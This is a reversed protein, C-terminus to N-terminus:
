GFDDDREVLHFGSQTAKAWQHGERGILGTFSRAAVGEVIPYALDANDGRDRLSKTSSAATDPKGRIALDAGTKERVEVMIQITHQCATSGIFIKSGENLLRDFGLFRAM